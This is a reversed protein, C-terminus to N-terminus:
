SATSLLPAFRACEHATCHVHIGSRGGRCKLIEVELDGNVGAQLKLRLAAPSAQRAAAPSRYLFGISGGTEAALQLRRVERDRIQAPWALVAGFSKCRLTQEFAWLTDGPNETRVVLLRELKVGHQSLAPAFPVYPPSILAIYREARTIQALAPMLLRLEGIGTEMPMLEVITGSQWGGGPLAADLEPSASPEVNLPAATDRGSRCLQALEKIKEARDM